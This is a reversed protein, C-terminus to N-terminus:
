ASPLCFGPWGKCLDYSPNVASRLRYNSSTKKNQEYPTLAALSTKSKCLNKQQILKLKSDFIKLIDNPNANINWGARHWDLPLGAMCLTSAPEWTAHADRTQQNCARSSVSSHPTMGRALRIVFSWAKPRESNRHDTSHLLHQTRSSLHRHQYLPM